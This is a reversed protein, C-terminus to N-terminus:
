GHDRARRSAQSAATGPAAPSGAAEPEIWGAPEGDENMPLFEWAPPIALEERKGDADAENEAEVNPARRWGRTPRLGWRWMACRSAVCAGIPSGTSGQTPTITITVDRLFAGLLRKTEEHSLGYVTTTRGDKDVVHIADLGDALTEITVLKATIAIADTSM